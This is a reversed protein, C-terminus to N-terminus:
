RQANVWTYEELEWRDIDKETLMPSGTPQHISGCSHLLKQPSNVCFGAWPLISVFTLYAFFTYKHLVLIQAGPDFLHRHRMEVTVAIVPGYYAVDCLRSSSAAMIIVVVAALFFEKILYDLLLEKSGTFLCAAYALASYRQDM